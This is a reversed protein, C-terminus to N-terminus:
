PRPSALEKAIVLRQVESTGEYITTVRADRYLQEVRCDNVFGAGGHIQVARYAIRNAAETAYLKAMSSDSKELRGEDVDAAARWILLKAAELEMASDAVMNGVAQFKGIPQNFQVRVRAYRIMEDICAEAIGSAQAAISIRGEALTSLFVPIGKGTEGILHDSPVFVEHFAIVATESGRIGMKGRIKTREIGPSSGDILFACFPNADPAGKLRALTLFWRCHIGNTIWMKEGTIRYGGQVAIAETKASYVDSGANAESLAFAAFNETQSMTSLWESRKPEKAKKKIVSAVMNHVAATVAVSPSWVALEHIISAYTRFSCNLGNWEEPLSLALIGMEALRPLVEVVSSEDKDWARDREALEDRAFDRVTDVLIRQDYPLSNHLPALPM